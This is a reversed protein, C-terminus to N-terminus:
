SRGGHLRVGESVHTANRAHRDGPGGGVVADRAACGPSRRGRLRVCGARHKANRLPRDQLPRDTDARGRARPSTRLTAAT